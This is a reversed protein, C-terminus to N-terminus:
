RIQSRPRSGGDPALNNTFGTAEIYAIALYYLLSLKDEPLRSFIEDKDALGYRKMWGFAAAIFVTCFIAGNIMPNKYGDPKYIEMLKPDSKYLKNIFDNTIDCPFSFIYVWGDATERLLPTGTAQRIIDEPIHVRDKSYKYSIIKNKSSVIRMDYMANSFADIWWDIGSQCAQLNPLNDKKSAKYIPKYTWDFKGSAGINNFLGESIYSNLSKM